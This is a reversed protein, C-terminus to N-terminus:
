YFLVGERGRKGEEKEARAFFSLPARKKEGPPPFEEKERRRRGHTKKKREGGEWATVNFNSAFRGRAGGCGERKKV